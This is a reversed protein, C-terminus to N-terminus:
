KKESDNPDSVRLNRELWCVRLICGCAITWTQSATTDNGSLLSVEVGLEVQPWMTVNQDKYKLSPCFSKWINQVYQCDRFPPQATEVTKVCHPYSGRIPGEWATRKVDLPLGNRQLCFLHIKRTRALTSM